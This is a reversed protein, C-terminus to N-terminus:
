GERWCGGGREKGGTIASLEEELMALARGPESEEWYHARRGRGGGGSARGAAAEGRGGGGGCRHPPTAFPSASLQAPDQVSSSDAPSGVHLRSAFPGALASAAADGGRQQAVAAAAAAHRAAAAAHQAAAAAQEAHAVPVGCPTVSYPQLASLPTAPPAGEDM